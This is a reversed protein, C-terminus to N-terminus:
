RMDSFYKCTFQKKIHRHRTCSAENVCAENTSTCSDSLIYFMEYKYIGFFEKAVSGNM